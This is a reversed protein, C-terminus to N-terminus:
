AERLTGSKILRVLENWEVRSLRVTNAGEGIAVGRKTIKVQPRHECEPCLTAKIRFVATPHNSRGSQQPHLCGV